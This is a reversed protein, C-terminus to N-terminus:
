PGTSVKLGPVQRRNASWTFVSVGFTQSESTRGVAHTPPVRMGSFHRRDYLLLYTAEHVNLVNCVAESRHDPLPGSNAHGRQRATPVSMPRLRAGAM